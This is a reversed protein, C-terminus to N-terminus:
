LGTFKERLKERVKEKNGYQKYLKKALAQHEPNGPNFAAAPEGGKEAEPEEGGNFGADNDEGPLFDVMEPNGWISLGGYANPNKLLKQMDQNRAKELDAIRKNIASVDEPRYGGAKGIRNRESSIARQYATQVSNIRKNVDRDEVGKRQINQNQLSALQSKINLPTAPDDIVSELADLDGARLAKYGKAFADSAQKDANIKSNAAQAKGFHQMVGFQSKPSLQSFDEASLKEGASIRGLIQQDQEQVKQQEVQMRNQLMELGKQGYPTLAKQLASMKESQPSDKLKEDNLVGDLARNAGYNILTDSLGKGLSYALEASAKARPDESGRFFQVM